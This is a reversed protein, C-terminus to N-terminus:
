PPRNYKVAGSEPVFEAMAATAARDRVEIIRDGLHVQGGPPIWVVGDIPEGDVTATDAGLGASDANHQGVANVTHDDRVILDVPSVGEVRVHGSDVHITTGAGVGSVTRVQVPGAVPPRGGFPVADDDLLSVWSGSRLGTQDLPTQPPYVTGDVAVRRDAGSTDSAMLNVLIAQLRGITADPTIDIFAISVDNTAGDHATVTM